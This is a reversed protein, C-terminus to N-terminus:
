LKSGNCYFPPSATSCFRLTEREFNEPQHIQEIEIQLTTESGSRLGCQGDCRIASQLNAQDYQIDILLIIILHISIQSPAFTYPQLHERRGSAADV